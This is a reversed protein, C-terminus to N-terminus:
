VQDAQVAQHFRQDKLITNYWGSFYQPLTSAGKTYPQNNQNRANGNAIWKAFSEALSRFNPPMIDANTLEDFLPKNNQSAFQNYLIISSSFGQNTRTSLLPCFTRGPMNAQTDTLPLSPRKKYPNPVKGGLGQSPFREHSAQKQHPIGSTSSPSSSPPDNM